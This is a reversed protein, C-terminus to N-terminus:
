AEAVSMAQMSAPKRPIQRTRAAWPECVCLFGHPWMFAWLAHRVCLAVVLLRDDPTVKCCVLLLLLLYYHVIHVVVVAACSILLLVPFCVPHKEDPYLYPATCLRLSM